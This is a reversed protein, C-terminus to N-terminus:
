IRVNGKGYESRDPVEAGSGPRFRSDGSPAKRESAYEQSKSVWNRWAAIWDRRTKGNARHWDLFRETEAALDIRIGKDSAWRRLDDTVDFTDPPPTARKRSDKERTGGGGGQERSGAGQEPVLSERTGGSDKASEERTEDSPEVPAEHTPCPPIRSASPHSPRQHERWNPCHLYRRGRVEYRCLPPLSDDDSKSSAILDIWEDVVAATVDDDVPFCDSKILRGDDVGRGSDDLYMWLLVFCYRVERPWDAVVLSTRLEPKISRIRAM